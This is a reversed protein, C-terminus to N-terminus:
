KQLVNMIEDEELPRYAGDKCEFLVTPEIVELSHWAMKPVQIGYQGKYPCIRFRAVEKFGAEVVASEGDHSRGADVDPLEEYFMWDLCGDLCIVTEASDMHRHIPMKTGPQLANLMRQSKDEPSTRLDFSQRLRESDSAKEYLDSLLTENILQIEMDTLRIIKDGYM